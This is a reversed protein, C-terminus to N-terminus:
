QRKKTSLLPHMMGSNRVTLLKMANKTASSKPSGRPANASTYRKAKEPSKTFSIIHDIMIDLIEYKVGTFKGSATFRAM